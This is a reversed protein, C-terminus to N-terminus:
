FYGKLEELPVTHIACKGIGHPLILDIKDAARKKDAAAARILAGPDLSTSLPLGMREIVTKIRTRDAASLVGTRVAVDSAMCVGAAVAEGHTYQDSCKEIAHAFTHGLNLLKRVGAEHEDAEVIAAKVRIAATIVRGLLEKDTRLAEFSSSELLEFLKADAIVAAKIIEALGARFEREPLTDLMSTDCLVFDPQNFVGAMNKYGDVNVGNKGGISADVQALLSTAVFGFDVGRMYTSAAFGTVDTVIGGGIGLIFTSRDAGVAILGRYLEELTSLTKNGEGLGILMYEYPSILERYRRHLNADTVIVVKRNEPLFSKLSTIVDGVVVKSPSRGERRVEIIEKM